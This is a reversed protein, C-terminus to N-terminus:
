RYENCPGHRILSEATVMKGDYFYKSPWECIAKAMRYQTKLVTVGEKNEEDPSMRISYLRNFLSQEFLQKKPLRFFPFLLFLLNKSHETYIHTLTKM